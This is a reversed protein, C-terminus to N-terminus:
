ENGEEQEEILVALNEATQYLLDAQGQLLSAENYLDEAAARDAEGYLDAIVRQLSLYARKLAKLSQNDIAMDGTYISGLERVIGQNALAKPLLL